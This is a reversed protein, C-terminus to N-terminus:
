YAFNHLQILAIIKNQTSVESQVTDWAKKLALEHGESSTEQSEDVDKVILVKKTLLLHFFRIPLGQLPFDVQSTATCDTEEPRGQLSSSSWCDTRCLAVTGHHFLDWAHM